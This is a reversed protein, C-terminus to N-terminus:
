AACTDTMAMPGLGEITMMREGTHIRYSSIQPNPVTTCQRVKLTKPARPHPCSLLYCSRSQGHRCYRGMGSLSRKRAKAADAASHEYQGTRDRALCNPLLLPLLIAAASLCMLAGVRREHLFSPGPSAMVCQAITGDRGLRNALCGPQLKKRGSAPRGFDTLRARTRKETGFVSGKRRDRDISNLFGAFRSV